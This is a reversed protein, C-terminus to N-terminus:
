TVRSAASVLLEKFQGLLQAAVAGDIARHDVSITCSMVTGLGPAGDVVVPRQSAAGIAFISSHPPNTIASFEEVLAALADSQTM